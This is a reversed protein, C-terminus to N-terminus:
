AVGECHICGSQTRDQQPSQAGCRPCSSDKITNPVNPRLPLTANIYKDFNGPRFLTEPNLYKPNEMFYPDVLKTDIVRKCDEITCGDHLRARIHGATKFKRGTKENLYALVQLADGSYRNDNNKCEKALQGQVLSPRGKDRGKYSGSDQYTDYNLVYILLGVYARTLNSPRGKNSSTGDIMPKVLIMGEAQLWSLMVRVEKISPTIIAKNFSYSLARAITSYTTILEGRKLIHGRFTHGDRFAAKGLLLLFLRLNQPPREWIASQFITRAILFSGGPILETM